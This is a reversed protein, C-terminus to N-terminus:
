VKKKTPEPNRLSINEMLLVENEALIMENVAQYVKVDVEAKCIEKILQDRQKKLQIVGVIAKIGLGTVIVTGVGKLVKIVVEKKM